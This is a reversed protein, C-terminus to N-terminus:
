SQSVKALQGSKVVTLFANWVANDVVLPADTPKTSNRVAIRGGNIVTVEVCSGSECYSSRRWDSSRSNLDSM